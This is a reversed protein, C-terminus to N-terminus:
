RLLVVRMQVARAGGNLRVLYIGAPLPQNRDSRGDWAVDHPGPRFRGAALHRVVRGTVDCVELELDSAAPTEVHVNTGARCPNPEARLRLAAPPPSDPVGVNVGIGITDDQTFVPNVYLGADYFTASRTTIHTVQANNSAVFHLKYLQGPGPLSVGPCLLIESISLTDAASSFRHFPFDACAGVMYSGAQNTTPSAPVFTLVAPDYALVADFGNFTSGPAVVDLEVDFGGGAAVNQRLPMVAVHVGQARAPSAPLLAIAALLAIAPIARRATLHM